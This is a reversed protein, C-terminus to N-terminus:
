VKKQITFCLHCFTLKNSIILYISIYFEHSFNCIILFFLFPLDFGFLNQIAM